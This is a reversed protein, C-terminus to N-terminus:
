NQYSGSIKIQDIRQHLDEMIGPLDDIEINPHNRDLSEMTESDYVGSIVSRVMQSKTPRYKDAIRFAELETATRVAEDLIHPRSQHIKWRIDFDSLSNIFHEKALDDLLQHNATPYALKVLKRIDHALHPLSEESQRQRSRLIAKFMQTQNESGFRQNLQNILAPYHHRDATTLDALISQATGRLSTALFMAMDQRTWNNMEAIMEFQILFDSWATTGDFLPPKTYIPCKNPISHRAMTIDVTNNTDGHNPSEQFQFTQQQPFEEPRQIRKDGPRSTECEGLDQMNRDKHDSQNLFIFNDWRQWWHFPFRIQEYAISTNLVM